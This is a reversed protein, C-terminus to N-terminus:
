KKIKELLEIENIKSMFDHSDKGISYEELMNNKIASSVLEIQKERLHFCLMDTYELKFNELLYKGFDQHSKVLYKAQPLNKLVNMVIDYGGMFFHDQIFPNEFTILHNLVYLKDNDFNNLFNDLEHIYLLTDLRNIIVFDYKKNSELIKKYLFRFSRFNMHMDRSENDVKYNNRSEIWIKTNPLLERIDYKEIARFSDENKCSDYSTDLTHVYCDVDHNKLINWTKIAVEATRFEGYTLIAIKM